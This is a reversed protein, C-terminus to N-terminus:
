MQICRWIRLESHLWMRFTEFASKLTLYYATNLPWTGSIYHSQELYYEKSAYKTHLFLWKLRLISSYQEKWLIRILKFISLSILHVHNSLLDVRLVTKKQRYNLFNSKRVALNEVKSFQPRTYLNSLTFPSLAGRPPHRFTVNFM